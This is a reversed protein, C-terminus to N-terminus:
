ILGMNLKKPPEVEKVPEPTPKAIEAPATAPEHEVGDEAAAAAMAAMIDPNSLISASIDSLESMDMNDIDAFVDDIDDAEVEATADSDEGNLSFDISSISTPDFKIVDEEVGTGHKAEPPATTTATGNMPAWQGTQVIQTGYPLATMFFRDWALEYEERISLSFSPNSRYEVPVQLLKRLNIPGSMVHIAGVMDKFKTLPEKVLMLFPAFIRIPTPVHDWFYDVDARSEESGTVDKLMKTKDEGYVDTLIVSQDYLVRHIYFYREDVDKTSIVLMNVDTPVVRDESYILM